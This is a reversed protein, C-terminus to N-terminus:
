KLSYIKQTKLQFASHFCIRFCVSLTRNFHFLLNDAFDLIAHKLFIQSSETEHFSGRQHKAIHRHAEVMFYNVRLHQAFSLLMNM